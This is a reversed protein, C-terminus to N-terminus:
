KKRRVDFGQAKANRYGDADAVTKTEFWKRSIVTGGKHKIIWRYKGHLQTIKLEAKEMSYREHM